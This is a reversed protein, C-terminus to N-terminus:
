QRVIHRQRDSVVVLALAVVLLVVFSTFKSLLLLLASHSLPYSFVQSDLFPASFVCELLPHVVVFAVIQKSCHSPPHISLSFSLIYLSKPSFSRTRTRRGREESPHNGEEKIISMFLHDGDIADHQHPLHFHKKKHNYSKCLHHLLSFFIICSPILTQNRRRKQFIKHHLHIPLGDV